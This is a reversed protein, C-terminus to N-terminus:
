IHMLGSYSHLYLVNCKSCAPSLKKGLTARIADYRDSHWIDVLSQENLNGVAFETFFKCASAKGSPTVDIRTSLALCTTACRATMSKGTVFGEIEDFDLGPQYRIRSKWIRANILRLDNMLPEVNSPRIHYKFAHWSSRRNDGIDSLWDFRERFDRDMDFSTEQSIYWPFCLMVLDIGKSEFFDTLEYLRGIMSDNIVSHVSIKGKFMGKARLDMLLDITQMVKGFSGKGRILDHEREFGEIAILLELDDSLRCLVDLHKEVLYANTCITVERRDQELLELITAIDKHFLPEGGWLYLRSKSPKTEELLKRFLDVDMDMNQEQKDMDHHYGDENWQYCHKCRLNCRNTLKVGITEPLQTKYAADRKRERHPVVVNQITRKLVQFSKPDLEVRSNPQM